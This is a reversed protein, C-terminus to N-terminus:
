WLLCIRADNKEEIADAQIKILALDKSSDLDLASSRLGGLEAGLNEGCGEKSSRIEKEKYLMSLEAMRMMLRKVQCEYTERDSFIAAYMLANSEESSKEFYVSKGDKEVIGNRYDVEIDCSGEFCVEISNGACGEVLLNSQNLDIIEEEVDNPAGIFCYIDTASTM